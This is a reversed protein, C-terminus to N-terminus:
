APADFVAACADLEPPGKAFDLVIIKFKHIISLEKWHRQSCGTEGIKNWTELYKYQCHRRFSCVYCNLLLDRVVMRFISSNTLRILHLANNTM